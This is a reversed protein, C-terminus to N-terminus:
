SAGIMTTEAPAPPLINQAYREEPFRLVVCISTLGNAARSAVVGLLHPRSEKGQPFLRAIKLVVEYVRTIVFSTWRSGACAPTRRGRSSAINAASGTSAENIGRGIRITLDDLCHPVRASFKQFAHDCSLRQGM